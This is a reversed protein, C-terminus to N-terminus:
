RRLVREYIRVWEEAVAPAQFRAVDEATVIATRVADTTALMRLQRALDEAGEPQFFWGNRGPAIVDCAGGSQAALLPVGAGLAELMAVSFPEHRSAIVLCDIERLFPAASPQEGLWQVSDTLNLGATRRRLFDAYRRGEDDDAGGIHSFRLRRREAEPLRAIAELILEWRKWAVLTGVGGLRVVGGASAPRARGPADSKPICGPVCQEWSDAGDIGYHRKMAPSLWFLAPALRRAAWRYFWRQRGYCHVSVVVRREGRRRLWLAVALGARSHGHFVRRPDEALWSRVQDAVRRAAWFTRVNLVEGALRPLGLAPLPPQRRQAFGENLGLVCSFRGTAALARVVSVIGGRDTDYGVYHLVAPSPDTM